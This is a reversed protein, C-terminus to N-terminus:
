RDEDGPFLNESREERKGFPYLLKNTQRRNTSRTSRIKEPRMQRIELGAVDLTEDVETRELPFDGARSSQLDVEIM